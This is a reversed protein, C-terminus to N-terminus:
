WADRGIETTHCIDVNFYDKAFDDLPSITVHVSPWNAVLPMRSHIADVHEIIWARSEVASDCGGSDKWLLGSARSM